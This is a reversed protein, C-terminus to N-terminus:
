SSYKDIPGASTADSLKVDGELDFVTRYFGGQVSVQQKRLADTDSAGAELSRFSLHIDHDLLVFLTYDANHAAEVFVERHVWSLDHAHSLSKSPGM